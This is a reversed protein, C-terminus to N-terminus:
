LQLEENQKRMQTEFEQELLAIDDISNLDCNSVLNDITAIYGRNASDYELLAILGVRTGKNWRAATPKLHHRRPDTPECAAKRKDVEARLATKPLSSRNIGEFTTHDSDGLLLKYDNYLKV